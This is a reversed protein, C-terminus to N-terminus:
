KLNSIQFKHNGLPAERKSGYLAKKGKQDNIIPIQFKSPIQSKLMTIQHKEKETVQATTEDARFQIGSSQRTNFISEM